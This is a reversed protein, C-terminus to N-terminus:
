DEGGEPDMKHVTPQTASATVALDVALPLGALVDDPLNMYPLDEQSARHGNEKTAQFYNAFAGYPLAALRVPNYAMAYTAERYHSDVTKLKRHFRRALDAAHGEGNLELYLRLVPRDEEYEKRMGWRNHTVGVLGLAEQVAKGDLRAIGFLDIIDDARRSFVLGPLRDGSEGEEPPVIRILDGQRYRLFPMGYFSTIVPEYLKGPELENLLLTRAQGNRHDVQEAPIFELFASDPVFFMRDKRWDQMAMLGGESSGYFQFAMKGWRSRALEQLTDSDAGWAVIGKVSWLDRPRIPTGDRSFLRRPHNKLLRLLVRPHLRPLFSIVSRGELIRSFGLEMPRFSSTMSIIYDIDTALARELVANIKQQFPLKDCYELPLVSRASFEELLGFALQASVFPKEPLIAMIRCGPALQVDGKRNASALILTALVNRLQVMVFERNWPVRKFGGRTYSTHVWYHPKRALSDEQCDGIYPAYDKYTTLPVTRRFEEVSGPKRNGAIAKGMPSDAVLDLQEMLLREQIGLFEARSLDLFGCYRQWIKRKDGEQFFRNESLM